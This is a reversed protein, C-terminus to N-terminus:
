ILRREIEAPEFKAALLKLLIRSNKIEIRNFVYFSIMQNISLPDKRSLSKAYENLSTFLAQVMDVVSKCDLVYEKLYTTELFSKIEDVRQCKSLEEIQKQTFNGGKLFLNKETYFYLAQRVNHRDILRKAFEKLAINDKAFKKLYAYYQTKLAHEFRSLEGKKIEQSFREVLPGYRTKKVLELAEDLSMKEIGKMTMDKSEPTGVFLDSLLHRSYYPNIKSRLVSVLFELSERGRLVKFFDQYKSPTYRIIKSLNKIYKERLRKQVLEERFDSDILDLLELGSSEELKVIASKYDTYALSKLENSNMFGARAARLRSAGYVYPIIKLIPYFILILIAIVAIIGAILILEM